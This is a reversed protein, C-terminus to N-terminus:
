FYFMYMNIHDLLFYIYSLISASTSVTIALIIFKILYL